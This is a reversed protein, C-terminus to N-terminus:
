QIPIHLIGLSAHPSVLWTGGGGSQDTVFDTIGIL